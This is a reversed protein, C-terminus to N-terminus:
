EVPGSQSEQIVRDWVILIDTDCSCQQYCVFNYHGPHMNSYDPHSENNIQLRLHLISMKDESSM